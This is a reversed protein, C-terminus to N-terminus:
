KSAFENTSVSYQAFDDTDHDLATNNSFAIKGTEMKGSDMGGM